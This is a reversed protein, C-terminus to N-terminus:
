PFVVFGRADMAEWKEDRIEFHLHHGTSTGPNPDTSSGGELGIIEGQLVINGKNVRIESLHAYLTYFTGIPLDHKIIVCNGYGGNVGAFTVEGSASALIECLHPTGFDTGTHLTYTGYVPHIRYGFEDTVPVTEANHFPMIFLNSESVSGFSVAGAMLTLLAFLLVAVALMSIYKIDATNIIKRGTNLIKATAKATKETTKSDRYKHSLKNVTHKRAERRYKERRLETFTSGISETASETMQQAYEAPDSSERDDSKILKEKAYNVPYKSANVANAVANKTKLKIRKEKLEM